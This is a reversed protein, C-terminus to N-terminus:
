YDSLLNGNADKLRYYACLSSIAAKSSYYVDVLAIGNSDFSSAYLRILNSGNKFQAGGAWIQIEVYGGPPLRDAVVSIRGHISGDPLTELMEVFGNDYPDGILYPDVTGKAAITSNTATRALLHVPQDGTAAVKLRRAGNLPDMESITLRSDWELPLDSAISTPLTWDRWRDSRVPFAPGFDPNVVRISTTATTVSSDPATHTTIISYTEQPFVQVEALSLYGDGANNLGLLSVRIIRAQVTQPLDWTFSSAVNGTGPPFYDQGLLETGSADRISIRFNSLRSQFDARNFLVVRKVPRDQGLNVEWWSNQQNNTLTVSNASFTADTNSDIARSAVATGNTSSQTAISGKSALAWNEFTFSHVVPTGATTSIDSNFGTIIVDGSDPVTTPHGTLRLSDGTRVTLSPTALLNTPAWSVSHDQVISSEEFSATLPQASGDAPLAINAFWRDDIAKELAVREGNITLWSHAVDSATGEVCAPSVQSTTSSLLGNREILRNEVWDPSGNNDTDAGAPVLIRLSDIRLNRSESINDLGITARYSGASLSPLLTLIRTPQGKYDHIPFNGIVWQKQDSTRTITVSISLPIGAWTNGQPTALVELIHWGSNELSFDYNVSGRRDLSILTDNPGVTWSGRSATGSSGSITSLVAGLGSAASSPDSGINHIEEFDSIGDGDSDANLPSTGLLYEERNTVGDGDADGLAGEIGRNFRGNDSPDLGTTSEWNDPLDDDDCDQLDYSFSTLATFPITIRSSGPTQVAACVNDGSNDEKHLVEIFCPSGATLWIPQSRQSPYKDFETSSTYQYLYNDGGVTAIMAKGFKRSTVNESAYTGSAYRGDNLYLACGNDGAIWFTHWGTVTPTYLGRLRQGYYDARSGLQWATVTDRIDPFQLFQPAHVLNAISGGAINTWTDRQLRGVIGNGANPPSQNILELLNPVGDGDPDGYEGQAQSTAGGDRANLGYKIEWADPLSDGDFDAPDPIASRLATAPVIQRNAEPVWECAQVEALCMYGNGMLNYGRFQVRIQRAQLTSGIDWILSGNVCQGSQTYFDQGALENGVADLASIRFNSLQQQNQVTDTRNFIVVRNVPRATGFDAQWWSNETTDTSAMSSFPSAGSTNGDIAKDATNTGYTNSQSAVTGNTALAWNTPEFAWAVSVHDGQAGEKHLIEFYQPVDKTLSVIGSKQSPTTDFAEPNTWSAFYAKKRKGSAQANESLWFEGADDGAVWFRWNGSRPPLILGRIRQGYNDSISRFSLASPIFASSTAPKPFAANSTLNAVTVGSINKWIDRQVYGPNGGAVFPDSHTLWEMHNNFGDGDPDAYSSDASNIHGNDAPNLGMAAEASDLLGDDDADLPDFVYSELVVTAATDSLRGPIVQVSTVAPNSADDPAYTWGIALNDSGAGEKMLCELYYKQGAVLHISASTQELYKTWERSATYGPVSAIRTRTFKSATSGLWLESSDDSSIYFCFNGSIPATLTGRLRVGYNDSVNTPIEASSILSLSDPSDHFHPSSFLSALSIGSIGDWREMRLVGPVARDPVLPNLGEACEQGNTIGDFDPDAVATKSLDGFYHMEFADPLGDGDSDVDAWNGQCYVPSSLGLLVAPVLVHFKPITQM